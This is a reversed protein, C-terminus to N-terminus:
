NSHMADAGGLFTQQTPIQFDEKVKASVHPTQPVAQEFSNNQTEPRTKPGKELKDYIFFQNIGDFFIAIIFLKILTFIIKNTYLEM